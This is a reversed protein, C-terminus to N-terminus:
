PLPTELVKDVFKNERYTTLEIIGLDQEKLINAIQKSITDREKELQLVKDLAQKQQESLNWLWM